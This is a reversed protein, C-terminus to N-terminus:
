CWGKQLSDPIRQLLSQPNMVFGPLPLARRESVSSDDPEVPIMRPPLSCIGPPNQLSGKHKKKLSGERFSRKLLSRKPTSPSKSPKRKVPSSKKSPPSNINSTNSSDDVSSPALQLFDHSPHDVLLRKEEDNVEELM